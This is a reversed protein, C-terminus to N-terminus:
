EKHPIKGKNKLLTKHLLCMMQIMPRPFWSLIYTTVNRLGYSIYPPGCKSNTQRKGFSMNDGSSTHIIIVETKCILFQTKLFDHQYMWPPLFSSM